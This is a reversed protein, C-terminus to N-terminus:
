SWQTAYANPRFKCFRRIEPKIKNIYRLASFRSALSSRLRLTEHTTQSQNLSLLWVAALETLKLLRSICESLEFAVLALFVWLPTLVWVINFVRFKLQICLVIEFAM